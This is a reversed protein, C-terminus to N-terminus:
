PTRKRSRVAYTHRHGEIWIDAYSIKDATHFYTVTKGIALLADGCTKREEQPESLVLESRNAYARNLAEIGKAAIYDDIGKHGRWKMQTIRSAEGEIERGFLTKAREVTQITSPNDDRDFALVIERGNLFAELDPHLTKLNEGRNERGTSTQTVDKEIEGFMDKVNNGWGWVGNLAIAAYGGSM